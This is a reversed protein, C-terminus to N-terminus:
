VVRAAMGQTAPQLKELKPPSIGAEFERSLTDTKLLRKLMALNCDVTSNTALTACAISVKVPVKNWLDGKIETPL